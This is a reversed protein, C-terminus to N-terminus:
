FKWFRKVMPNRLSQFINEWLSCFNESIESFNKRDRIQYGNSALGTMTVTVKYLASNPPKFRNSNGDIQNLNLKDWDFDRDVSFAIVYYHRLLLTIGIFCRKAFLFNPVVFLLLSSTIIVYHYRLLSTIFFEFSRKPLFWSQNSARPQKWLSINYGFCM